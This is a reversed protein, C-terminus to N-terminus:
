LGPFTRHYCNIKYKNTQNVMQNTKCNKNCKVLSQVTMLKDVLINAMWKAKKRNTISSNIRRNWCSMIKMSWLLVLANRASNFAKRSCDVIDTMGIATWTPCTGTASRTMLKWAGGRKKFTSWLKSQQGNSTRLKSYRESSRASSSSHLCPDSRRSTRSTSPLATTACTSLPIGSVTRWRRLQRMLTCNPRRM